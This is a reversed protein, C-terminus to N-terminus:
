ADDGIKWAGDVIVIVESITNIVLKECKRYITPFCPRVMLEKNCGKSKSNHPPIQYV